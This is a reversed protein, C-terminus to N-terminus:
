CCQPEQHYDFVQIRLTSKESFMDIPELPSANPIDLYPLTNNSWDHNCNQGTAALWKRFDYCDQVEPPSPAAPKANPRPHRRAIGPRNSTAM